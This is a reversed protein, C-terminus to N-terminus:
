KITKSPNRVLILRDKRAPEVIESIRKRNIGCKYLIEFVQAAAIKRERHESLLHNELTLLTREKNGKQAKEDLELCLMIGEEIFGRLVGQKEKTTYKATIAEVLKDFIESFIVGHREQANIKVYAYLILDLRKKRDNDHWFRRYFSMWNSELSWLDDYFEMCENKDCFETIGTVILGLNSDYKSIRRFIDKLYTLSKTSKLSILSLILPKPDIVKEAYSYYREPFYKAKMEDNWDKETPMTIKEIGIDKMCELAEKRINEESSFLALSVLIPRIDKPYKVGKALSIGMLQMGPDDSMLFKRPDDKGEMNSFYFKYIPHSSSLIYKILNAIDEKNNTLAIKYLEKEEKSMSGHEVQSWHTTFFKLRKVDDIMSLLAAFILRESKTGHGEPLAKGIDIFQTLGAILCDKSDICKLAELIKRGSSVEGDPHAMAFKAHGRWFLSLTLAKILPEASKKNRYYGLIDAINGIIEDSISTHNERSSSTYGESGFFEDDKAAQNLLHNMIEIIKTKTKSTALEKLNNLSPLSHIIESPELKKTKVKELLGVIVELSEKSQIDGLRKGGEICQASPYGSNDIIEINKGLLEMENYGNEILIRRVSTCIESINKAINKRSEHYDEEKQSSYYAWSRCERDEEDSINDLHGKKLNQISYYIHQLYLPRSLYKEIASHNSKSVPGINELIIRVDDLDANNKRLYKIMDKTSEKKKSLSRLCSKYSHIPYDKIDVGWGLSFVENEYTEAKDSYKNLIDVIKEAFDANDTKVYKLPLLIFPGIDLESNKLEQTLAEINKPLEDIIEQDNKNIRQVLADKAGSISLNRKKLINKLQAVTLSEYDVPDSDTDRIKEALKVTDTSLNKAIIAEAKDRIIKEEDWIHPIVHSLVEKDSKNESMQLGDFVIIPDSKKLMDIIENTGIQKKIGKKQKEELEKRVSAKQIRGSSVINEFNTKWWNVVYKYQNNSKEYKSYCPTCYKEDWDRGSYYGRKEMMFMAGRIKSECIRCKGSGSVIGSWDLTTQHNWFGLQNSNELEIEHKEILFDETLFDVISKTYNYEFIKKARNRIANNDGFLYMAFIVAMEEDDIKTVEFDEEVIEDANETETQNRAKDLHSCNKRYMFGPCSCEYYGNEVTVTYFKGSSSSSEFTFESVPKKAEKKRSDNTRPNTKRWKEIWESITIKKGQSSTVEKMSKLAKKAADHVYSAPFHSSYSEYAKTLSEKARPDGLKGLEQAAKEHLFYHYDKNELIDILPDVAKEGFKQIIVSFNKDACGWIDYYDDEEKKTVVGYEGYDTSKGMSNAETFLKELYKPEMKTFWEIFKSDLELFDSGHSNSLSYFHIYGRIVIEIDREEKIDCNLLAEIGAQRASENEDEDDTKLKKAKNIGEIMEILPEKMRLDGIQGLAKAAASRVDEWNNNEHYTNVKLLKILPEVAKKDGIKGLSEAATYRVDKNSDKLLKILPEVANKDNYIKLAKAANKRVHINSDKLLKKLPEVARKDGIERLSNIIIFRLEPSPNKLADILSITSKEGGIIGLLLAASLINSDGNQLSLICEDIAPEGFKGLVEATARIHKNFYQNSIANEISEFNDVGWEEMEQAAEESISKSLTGIIPSIARTDGIRGLASTCHSIHYTNSEKSLFDLTKILILPATNTGTNELRERQTTKSGSISLGKEHLIERMYSDEDFKELIDIFTYVRTNGRFGHNRLIARTWIDIGHLKTNEFKRFLEMFQYEKQTRLKPKWTDSILKKLDEPAQKMFTSKAAARVTNDDHWMYLGAILGLFDDSVETAMSLGKMVIAPDDSELFKRLNEPSTDETM